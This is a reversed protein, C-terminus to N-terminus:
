QAIWGGDIVLQSGRMQNAAPTCLFIVVQAVEKPTVFKGSPHKVAVLARREKEISTGKQRARDEIQKQALPTLVWGPCVTNCTIDGDATELAIVKTLGIVGHKAPLM